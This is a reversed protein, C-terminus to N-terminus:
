CNSRSMLLGLDECTLWEEVIDAARTRMRAVPERESKSWKALVYAALDEIESDTEPGVGCRLRVFGSGGLSAILSDLGRHGGSSGNPRLRLRGLRLAVDDVVVLLHTAPDIGDRRLMPAVARGSLNMYTTPKLLTCAVGAIRGEAYEAEVKRSAQWRLGHRAALEDLVEFGVNHPTAEYRRGPNGLGVILRM